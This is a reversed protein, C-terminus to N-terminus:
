PILLLKGTTARSELLRHAEAADRLPLEKAIRIRLQGHEIASFLERARLLLEERTSTYHGLSPRTLYIGRKALRSPDVPPVPGSSQGFLALTGRLGVSDLSKDFTTKGVSDYVVRVGAGNTERMVVDHFDESTYDIVVDAGDERPIDLKKTSATAFVTAGIAKAMQVILAGAGGAAAHVVASDGASLPFTSHTLYHATMGQLMAAAATRADIGAPVPVLKWEPVVAYEAYSGPNMAYVVRQGTEEVVGAAESGPTFPLPMPYLGSRHYIDIYNVGIAEVRVLVEGPGPKPVPVEAVELVDAGGPAEVRIAKM